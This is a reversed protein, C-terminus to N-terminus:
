VAWRILVGYFPLGHTREFWEMMDASSAFGDAIALAEAQAPLLLDGALHIPRGTNSWSVAVPTVSQCPLLPRLVRQPSMYPRGTWQRLSLLDGAQIPRKREGRITHPKRGSEVLPAFRPQFTLVIM